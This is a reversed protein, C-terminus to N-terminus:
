RKNAVEEQSSSSLKQFRPDNQILDFMPDLRLLAPTLPMGIALAGNGPKAMIEQLAAISRAPENMRAAVRALVEVTQSFNAADKEMPRVAMAREVLSFAAAKDGLSMEVLALDRILSTNEPQEILDTELERRADRWTQQAAAEDGAVEQLWGLWFRLEGNLYGLGPHPKALIEQLSGIIPTPRRELIAQYAVIEWATPDEESPRVSALVAAAGSLDGQAQAVAAAEVSADIDGPAIELIQHIKRMAEPFRRLMIDLQAHSSLLGISRPDLREAEKFYSDSRDWQGTRRAIFALSEPIRSSNPLFEKAKDFAQKAATLDGTCGYNYYGRAVWAEGLRPELALAIEASQRAEERLVATPQLNLTGYGRSDVYSLLAWALAFRPDLRVAKRLCKQANLYNAPTNKTRRTDALARLYDDYAESNETPKAALAEEEQATLRVQLKAAAMRAVNTEVSFLQAVDDDFSEVWLDSGTAAEVLQINVRLAAGNKRVGGKLIHTVGLQRSIEAINEPASKYTLPSTHSIVKLQPIRALREVIGDQIGDVFYADANEGGLNEFPLIALSANTLSRAAGRNSQLKEYILAGIAAFLIAIVLLYCKPSRLMLPFRSIFCPAETRPM